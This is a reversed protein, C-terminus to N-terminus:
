HEPSRRDQRPCTELDQGTNPNNLGIWEDVLVTDFGVRYENGVRMLPRRILIPNEIMLKLARDESLRSPDIRGSQIDPATTNFWMTVSMHDFFPRLTEAQWAEALLDRCDVDHGADLLLKKQRTNNICGPKEYFVVKAM